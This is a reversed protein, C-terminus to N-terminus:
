QRDPITGSLCVSSLRQVDNEAAALLDSWAVIAASYKASIDM